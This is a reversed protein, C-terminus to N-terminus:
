PSTASKKQIFASIQNVSDLNGPVLEQDEIKIQYNKELFAILEMIGVSDILGSQLFSTDDSFGEDDGFLFNEIIFERVPELNIM